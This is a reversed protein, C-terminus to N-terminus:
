FRLIGQVSLTQGRGWFSYNSKALFSSGALPTDGGFSLVREDTLNNALAAVEWRGSQAGLGVRANLMTYADQVLAPDYTASADYESTYFVNLLASLELSSGIPFRFDFSLNGQFDSVLQNSNGTYSCLAPTGPGDFFCQGNEFDTFEFDTIAFGGAITLFDTAAWRLDAELGKVEASAANGVNFGLVGDFISIQLDDFETFFAALNLEFAGGGLVPVQRRAEFNSAEEDDFEFSSAM